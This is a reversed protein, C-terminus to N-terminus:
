GTDLRSLLAHSNHNNTEQSLQLSLPSHAANCVTSTRSKNTGEAKSGEDKLKCVAKNGTSPAKSM